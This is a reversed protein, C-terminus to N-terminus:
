VIKVENMISIFQTPITQVMVTIKADGLLMLLITHAVCQVIVITNHIYNIATNCALM